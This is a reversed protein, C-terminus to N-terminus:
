TLLEVAHASVYEPTLVGRCDGCEYRDGGENVIPTEQDELTGNEGLPDIDTDLRDVHGTIWVARAHMLPANKAGCADHSIYYM